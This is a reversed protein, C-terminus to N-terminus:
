LAHSDRDQGIARIEASRRGLQAREAVGVGGVHHRGLAAPQRWSHPLRGACRRRSDGLTGAERAAAIIGLLEDAPPAGAPL